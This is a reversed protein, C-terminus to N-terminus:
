CRLPDGALACRISSFPGNGLGQAPFLHLGTEATGLNAALETGPSAEGWLDPFLVGVTAMQPVSRLLPPFALMSVWSPLVDGLDGGYVTVRGHPSHCVGSLTACYGRVQVM